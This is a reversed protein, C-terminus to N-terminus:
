LFLGGVRFIIFSVIWAVACQFCVVGIAYRWGGMERRITALTAVCPMYLLCFVLFAFASLPTFVQTLMATLNAGESAGTLVALTSVVAEKASMGTIM